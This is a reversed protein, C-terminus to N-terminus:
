QQPFCTAYAALVAQCDVGVPEAIDSHDACAWEAELGCSYAAEAKAACDDTLRPVILGCGQKCSDVMPHQDTLCGTADGEAECHAECAELASEKTSPEDGGCGALLSCGLAVLLAPARLFSLNM